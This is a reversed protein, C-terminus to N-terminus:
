TTRTMTRSLPVGLKDSEFASVMTTLSTFRGGTSSAILLLRHGSRHPRRPRATSSASALHQRSNLSREVHASCLDAGLGCIAVRNSIADLLRAPPKVENVVITLANSDSLSPTGNDRVIVRVVYTGPGQAETPTWTLLGTAPNLSLGTPAGPALQWTLTQLPLDPDTASLPLSLTTQEDV